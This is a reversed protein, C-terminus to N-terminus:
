CGKWVPKRKESFARPGENADHSLLLKEYLEVVKGMTPGVPHDIGWYVLEKAAIVSLPANSAITQALLKAEGLLSDADVVKNIFGIDYARNASIHKGSLVIEMVASIPILKGLVASFPALLGVRSETIGLFADTAAYRIDCM